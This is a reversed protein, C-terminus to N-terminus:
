KTRHCFTGIIDDAEYGAASLSHINFADVVAQIYPIQEILDHPMEARNAKYEPYMKKRFTEEKSDFIISLYDPKHEKLVKLIMTAFGYVANVHLGKSTTLPRIAYFARYFYSNGDILYLKKAM